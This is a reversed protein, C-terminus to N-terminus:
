GKRIRNSLLARLGMGKGQAYANLPVVLRQGTAVEIANPVFELAIITLV